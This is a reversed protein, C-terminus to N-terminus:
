NKYEELKIYKAQLAKTILFFLQNDKFTLTNKEIEMYDLLQSYTVQDRKKKKQDRVKDRLICKVNERLTRYSRLLSLYTM